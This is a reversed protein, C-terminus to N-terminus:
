HVEPVLESNAYFSILYFFDRQSIVITTEYRNNIMFSCPTFIKEGGCPLVIYICFHSQFM